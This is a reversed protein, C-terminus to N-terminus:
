KKIETIKIIDNINIWGHEITLVQYDTIQIISDVIADTKTKILYKHNFSYKDKTLINDLNVSSEEDIRTENLSNNIEKDIKNVFVKPLENM